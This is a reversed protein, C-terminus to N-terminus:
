RPRDDLMLYRLGQYYLRYPQLCPVEGILKELCGLMETYAAQLRGAKKRKHLSCCKAHAEFLFDLVCQCKVFNWPGFSQERVNTRAVNLLADAEAERGMRYLALVRMPAFHRDWQLAFMVGDDGKAMARECDSNAKQPNNLHCLLGARLYTARGVQVFADKQEHAYQYWYSVQTWCSRFNGANYASVTSFMLSEELVSKMQLEKAISVAKLGGECARTCNTFMGVTNQAAFAHAQLFKSNTQTAMQM